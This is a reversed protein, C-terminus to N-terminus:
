QLNEVVNENKESWITTYNNKEPQIMFINISRRM